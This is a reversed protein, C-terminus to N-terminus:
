DIQKIVWRDNSLGETIPPFNAFFIMHSFDRCVFGSEYKTSFIMGDLCSEIANFNLHGESSRPINFVITNQKPDMKKFAYAIDATKANQLPFANHTLILHRMFVSKGVNGNPEWFWHLKRGDPLTKMLDIIEQQWWKYTHGRSTFYDTIAVLPAPFFYPGEIRTDIKHSYADAAEINNTEECHAINSFHRKLWSLRNRKKLKLAIQWHDYGTDSKELQWSAYTTHQEMWQRIHERPVIASNASNASNASINFNLTILYHSKPNQQKRADSPTRTNGVGESVVRASYASSQSSM